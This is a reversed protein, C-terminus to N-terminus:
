AAGGTRIQEDYVVREAWDQAATGEIVIPMCARVYRRREEIIHLICGSRRQRDIRRQAKRIVIDAVITM